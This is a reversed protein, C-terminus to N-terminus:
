CRQVKKGNPVKEKIVESGCLYALGSWKDSLQKAIITHLVHIGDECSQFTFKYLMHDKHNVTDPAWENLTLLM